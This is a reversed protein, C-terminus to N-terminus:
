IRPTGASHLLPPHVDSSIVWGYHGRFPGSTLRIGIADRVAGGVKQHAISHYCAVVEAHTGPGALVTHEMVERSSSWRGEVYAALRERTDWIMVDPDAPDSQLMVRAGVNTTCSAAYVFTPVSFLFVALAGLRPANV